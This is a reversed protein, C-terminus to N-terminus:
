RRRTTCSTSGWWFRWHHSLRHTCYYMLDDLLVCLAVTWWAWPVALLRFQAMWRVVATGHDRIVVHAVLSM